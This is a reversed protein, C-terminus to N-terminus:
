GRVWGSWARGCLQRIDKANHKLIELQALQFFYDESLNITSMLRKYFIQTNESVWPMQTSITDVEWHERLVYALLFKYLGLRKNKDPVVIDFRLTTGQIVYQAFLWM